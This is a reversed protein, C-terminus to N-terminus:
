DVIDELQIVPFPDMILYCDDPINIDMTNLGLFAYAKCVQFMDNGLERAHTLDGSCMPLGYDWEMPRGTYVRMAEMNKVKYISYSKGYTIGFYGKVFLPFASDIKELNLNSNDAEVKLDNTAQEHKWVNSATFFYTFHGSSMTAKLGEPIKSSVVQRPYGAYMVEDEFDYKWYQNGKFFYAASISINVFAADLDPELGDWAASIFKPYGEAVSIEGHKNREVKYFVDSSFFFLTKTRPHQIIADFKDVCSTMNASPLSDQSSSAQHLLHDQFAIADPHDATYVAGIGEPYLETIGFLDDYDLNIVSQLGRHYPSMLSEKNLSHKLGFTHGFEHAATYYLNVGRETNRTFEEDNDFHVEGSRPYFAHALVGMPGDFPYKDGHNKSLFSIRIHAIDIDTVEYLELAVHRTWVEFARVIEVKTMADLTDSVSEIFFALKTDEWKEDSTEYRKKHNLLTDDDEEEDMFGKSKRRTQLAKSKVDLEVLNGLDYDGNVNANLESFYNPYIDPVGCRPVTMLKLVNMDVIGTPPLNNMSQFLKLAGEIDEMNMLSVEGIEDELSSIVTNHHDNGLYGDIYGFDDLYNVVTRSNKLRRTILERDFVVPHMVSSRRETDVEYEDNLVGVDNPVGVDSREGVFILDNDLNKDEVYTKLFGESQLQRLIVIDPSLIAASESRVIFCLLIFYMAFYLGTSQTM